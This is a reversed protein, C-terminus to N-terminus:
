RVARALVTLSVTLDNSLTSAGGVDFDRRNITFSGTFIYDDGAPAALFPFSIEKTTAKITLRGTLKYHGKRDVATVGTSVFRIRPYKEVDFYSDKRLHDDRMGNDTNVSAADISVDFSDAATNQPDFFIAGQLGKFSGETNFGFNKIRFSITSGEDVPLFSHAASPSQAYSCLVALQALAFGIVIRM